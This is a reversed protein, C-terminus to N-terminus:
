IRDMCSWPSVLARERQHWLHIPHLFKTHITSSIRRAAPALTLLALDLELHLSERKDLACGLSKFMASRDDSLRKIYYASLQNRAHRSSLHLEYGRLCFDDFLWVLELVYLKTPESSESTPDNDQNDNAFVIPDLLIDAVQIYRVSDV